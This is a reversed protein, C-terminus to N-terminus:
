PRADVWRPSAQGAQTAPWSEPTGRLKDNLRSTRASGQPHTGEKNNASTPAPHPDATRRDQHGAPGPKGPKPAGAPQAAKARINRFGRHVRAPTLRGPPPNRGPAACTPLWRAPSAFSPTASRGALDVPGRRRPRPDEPRDVRPSSSCASPTSWTLAGCCRRGSIAQCLRWCPVRAGGEPLSAGAGRGRVTPRAHRSSALRTRGAVIVANIGRDPSKEGTKSKLDLNLSIEGTGPNL